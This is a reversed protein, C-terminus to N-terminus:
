AVSRLDYSKARSDLAYSLDKIDDPLFGLGRCSNTYDEKILPMMYSKEGLRCYEFLASVMAHMEILYAMLWVVAGRNVVVGYDQTLDDNLSKVRSHNIQLRALVFALYDALEKDAAIMCRHFVEEYGCPLAPVTHHLRDGQQAKNVEKLFKACGEFYGILESLARPLFAVAAAHERKRQQRTNYHASYLAFVSSVLAIMGVNLAQWSHWVKQVHGWDFGSEVVPWVVMFFIYPLLLFLFMGASFREGVTADKLKLTIKNWLAVGKRLLTVKSGRSKDGM